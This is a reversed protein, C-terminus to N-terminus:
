RESSEASFQISMALPTGDSKPKAITICGASDRNPKRRARRTQHIENHRHRVAALRDFECRPLRMPDARARNAAFVLMRFRRARHWSWRNRRDRPFRDQSGCRVVRQSERRRFFRAYPRSPKGEIAQMRHATTSSAEWMAGVDAGCVRASRVQCFRRGPTIAVLVLFLYNHRMLRECERRM